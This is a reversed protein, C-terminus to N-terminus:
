RNNETFFDRIDKGHSPELAYPLKGLRVERATKAAWKAWKLAGAQGPEDSDGVVWVRRGGFIATMWPKPTETAGGSNAVVLFKDRAAPPMAAWMTLMDSPGEVKIITAEDGARPVRDLAHKGLMGSESAGTTKMKVWTTPKDKGHYVPLGLGTTNWVVWGVPDAITLGAGYIPLAVVDYQDYYRAMRGGAAQIAEVTIGRKKLCWLRAALETRANWPKFALNEAPSKPTKGNLEVGAVAAYHDRAVTWVPFKGQQVCLDFFSLSLGVGGRDIYRGNLVNVAASPNNDDRDIARCPAWGDEGAHGQIEIGMSNFEAEFNIKELIKDRFEGWNIEKKKKGM